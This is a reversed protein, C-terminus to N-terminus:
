TNKKYIKWHIFFVISSIIFFIISNVLTQAGSRQENSLVLEYSKNRMKTLKEESPKEKMKGDKEPPYRNPHNQWFKENSQHQEYQWQDVTFDPFMISISSFIGIGLSIVLAVVGIFCVALSYIELASKKM